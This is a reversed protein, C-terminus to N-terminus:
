QAPEGTDEYVWANSGEDVVIKRGNLYLPESAKPKEDNVPNEKVFSKWADLMGSTSQKESLYDSKFGDYHAKARMLRARAELWKSMQGTNAFDNPFGARMIKIDRDTAPGPPLAAVTEANLFARAGRRLMSLDDETGFFGKVADAAAAPAGSAADKFQGSFEAAMRDASEAQLMSTNYDDSSKQIAQGVYAPTERFQKTGTPVDYVSGDPAAMTQVMNGNEDPHPQGVTQPVTSTPEPRAKIGAAVRAAHQTEEPTFQGVEALRDFEQM